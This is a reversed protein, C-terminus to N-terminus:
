EPLNMRDQTMEQYRQNDIYRQQGYNEPRGGPPPPGYTNDCAALLTLAAGVLCLRATRSM